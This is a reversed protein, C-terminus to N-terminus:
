ASGSVLKRNVGAFDRDDLGMHERLYSDVSGYRTRVASLAHRLTSRQLEFMGRVDDRGVGVTALQEYRENLRESPLYRSSLEYDDLVTAEDVGVILLLLAATLGARDKGGSCNFVLPGQDRDAVHRIVTALSGAHQDLIRGYSEAMDDFSFSRLRGARMEAVASLNNPGTSSIPLREYRVGDLESLMSPFEGVEVDGRFDCSLDIGLCGLYGLDSQTLLGPNDSRYVRGWRTQGDPTPYGGLDRVNHAGELPLRREATVVFPDGDAFLHVYYRVSPDPLRLIAVGPSDPGRVDVGADDPDTSLFVSADPAGRWTVV